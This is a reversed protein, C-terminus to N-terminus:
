QKDKLAKEEKKQRSKIRMFLTASFLREIEEQTKGEDLYFDIYEFAHGIANVGIEQQMAKIKLWGKDEKYSM